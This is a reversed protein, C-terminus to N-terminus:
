KHGRTDDLGLLARARAEEEPSLRREEEPTRRYRAYVVMGGVAIGFFLLPGLWLLATAINFPPRYSVFDGYREKLFTIIEQDSKGQRALEEVERRLDSALDAHSDALSQNQCVLCRLEEELRRMRDQFAIEATSSTMAPASTPKLSVGAEAAYGSSGTLLVNVMAVAGVAIRRLRRLQRSPKVMPPM